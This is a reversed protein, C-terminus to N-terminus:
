PLFRTKILSLLKRGLEDVARTDDGEDGSVCFTMDGKSLSISTDESDEAPGLSVWTLHLDYGAM